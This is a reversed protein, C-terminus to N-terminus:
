GACPIWGLTTTNSKRMDLLVVRANAACLAVLGMAGAEITRRVGSALSTCISTNYQPM